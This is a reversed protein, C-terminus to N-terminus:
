HSQMKHSFSVFREALDRIREYDELEALEDQPLAKEGRRAGWIAGAMAGITDVDGAMRAIFTLLELFGREAFALALYIATICSNQAAIGNGLEVAVRQPSIREEGELWQRARHLKRSFEPATAQKILRALINGVAENRGALATALAILVAGEQALLHAHTIAASDKAAQVLEEEPGSAFFLGIIPARMAGGNGFSGDPYVLRRAEQWPTGRRIAKLLRAAGPGYGRWWRYSSAFRQALDNMKRYLAMNWDMDAMKRGTRTRQAVELLSLM